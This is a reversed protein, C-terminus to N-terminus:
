TERNVEEIKLHFIKEAIWRILTLENGQIVVNNNKMGLFGYNVDFGNDKETIEIIRKSM